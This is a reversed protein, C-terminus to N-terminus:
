ADPVVYVVTRTQHLLDHVGLGFQKGYLFPVRFPMGSCYCWCM